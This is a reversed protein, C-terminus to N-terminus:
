SLNATIGGQSTEEAIKTTETSGEGAQRHGEVVQVVPFGLHRLLAFSRAPISEILM